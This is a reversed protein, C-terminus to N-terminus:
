RTYSSGIASISSVIAQNSIKRLYDATDDTFIPGFAFLLFYSIFKNPLVKTSIM